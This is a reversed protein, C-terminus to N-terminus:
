QQWQLSPLVELSQQLQVDSKSHLLRARAHQVSNGPPALWLDEFM